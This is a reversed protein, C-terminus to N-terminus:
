CQCGSRLTDNVDQNPKPSGANGENKVLTGQALKVGAWIVNTWCTVLVLDILAFRLSSISEVVSCSGGSQDPLILNLASDKVQTSLSASVKEKESYQTSFHCSDLTALLVM